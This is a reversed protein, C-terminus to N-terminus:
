CLQFCHRAAYINRCRCQTSIRYPTPLLLLIIIFYIAPATSSHRAIDHTDDFLLTMTFILLPAHGALRPRRRRWEHGILKPQCHSALSLAHSRTRPTLEYRAEGVDAFREFFLRHRPM